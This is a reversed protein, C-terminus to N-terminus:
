GLGKAIDHSFRVETVAFFVFYLLQCKSRIPIGHHTRYLVYRKNVWPVTLESIEQGRRPCSCWPTEASARCRSSTFAAALHCVLRFQDRHLAIPCIRMEISYSCYTHVLCNQLIRYSCLNCSMGSFIKGRHTM